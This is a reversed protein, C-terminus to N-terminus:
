RRWGRAVTQIFKMGKRDCDFKKQRESVSQTQTHFYLFASMLAYNLSPYQLLLSDSSKHLDSSVRRYPSFFLKWHLFHDSGAKKFAHNIRHRERRWTHAFSANHFRRDYIIILRSGRPGPVPEQFAETWSKPFMSSLM